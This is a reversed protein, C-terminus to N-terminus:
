SRTGDIRSFPNYGYDKWLESNYEAEVLNPSLGLNYIRNSNHFILNYLLGEKIKHRRLLEIGKPWFVIEPVGSKHKETFQYGPLGKDEEPHPAHDTGIIHTRGELVYNLLREQRSKDRLPPNMKVGAGQILYDEDANLFMHHFTTEFLLNFKPCHIKVLNEGLDITDPNSTHLVVFNGQFGADYANRFQREFQVTEAEPRQVVSHSSPNHADYKGSFLKGDEFHGISTGNYNLEAKLFWAKRQEEEDIIEIDGSNTSRVYFTKDSVAYRQGRALALASIQQNRDPTLVIHVRHEVNGRYKEALFIREYIVKKTTLPPTTNGQEIMAALGVAQANNFGIQLFNKQYERWRLHVHPDIPSTYKAM